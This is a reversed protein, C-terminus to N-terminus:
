FSDLLVTFLFSLVCRRFIRPVLGRGVGDSDDLLWTCERVSKRQRHTARGGKEGEVFLWEDLGKQNLHAKAKAKKAAMQPAFKALSLGDGGGNKLVVDVVEAASLM